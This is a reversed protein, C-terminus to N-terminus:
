GLWAQKHDRAYSEFSIPARGLVKQVSDLVASAHGERLAGAIFGLFNAYDTPLGAAILGNVFADPAMDVYQIDLGTAASIFRAADSHTIAAGGTLNLAQAQYGEGAVISAIVASIDRADIFSARAEGGPFYIKRDKLIGAIWFTHFNQMFWNPRVLTFNLGSDELYLELRRFPAEPPAFEVGMATMLVVKKLGREKARRIWPSLIEFQNTFGPPSLLTAAEVENLAELGLDPRAADVGVHSMKPRKELQEPHRTGGIVEHGAELLENVVGRGTLGTAGYVFVKM